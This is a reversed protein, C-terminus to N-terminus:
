STVYPTLVNTSFVGLCFSFALVLDIYYKGDHRLGLLNYGHDIRLYQFPRSIDITLNRAPPGISNLKEVILYM